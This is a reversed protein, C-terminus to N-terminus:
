SGGGSKQVAEVMSMALAVVGADADALLKRRKVEWREHISAPANALEAREKAYTDTLREYLQGAKVGQSTEHKKRPPDPQTSPTPKPPM